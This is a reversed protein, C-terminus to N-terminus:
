ARAGHEGLEIAEASSGVVARDVLDAAVLDDLGDGAGRQEARAAVAADDEGLQDAARGLLQDRARALQDVRHQEAGGEGVGGLAGVRRHALRGLARHERDHAVHRGRDGVVERVQGLLWRRRAASASGSCCFASIAAASSRAITAPSADTM